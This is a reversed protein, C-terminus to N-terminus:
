GSSCGLGSAFQKSIDINLM